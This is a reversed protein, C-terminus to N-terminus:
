SPDVTTFQSDLKEYLQVILNRSYGFDVLGGSDTTISFDVATHFPRVMIITAVIFARRKGKYKVTLEGREKSSAVIESPSQFLEEVARFTDDHKAKYYHTVLASDKHKESTESHNSIYRSIFAKM